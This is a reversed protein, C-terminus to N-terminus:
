PAIFCRSFQMVSTENVVIICVNVWSFVSRIKSKSFSLTIYNHVRKFIYFNKQM